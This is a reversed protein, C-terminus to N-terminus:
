RKPRATKTALATPTPSPVETPYAKVECGVACGVGWATCPLSWRYGCQGRTHDCCRLCEAKTSTSKACSDQEEIPMDGWDGGPECASMCSEKSDPSLLGCCSQCARGRYNKACYADRPAALEDRECGSLCMELFRPPNPHAPPSPQKKCCDECKARVDATQTYVLQFDNGSCQLPDTNPAPAFDEVRFQCGCGPMVESMLSDPIEPSPLPYDEYVWGQPEVLYWMGDSLRILNMAHGSGHPCWVSVSRCNSRGTFTGCLNDFSKRYDTCNSLGPYYGGVRNCCEVILNNVSHLECKVNSWAVTPTVLPSPHPTPRQAHSYSDQLYVFVAACFMFLRALSRIPM